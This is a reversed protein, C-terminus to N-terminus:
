TAASSTLYLKLNIIRTLTLTFINPRSENNPIPLQHPGREMSAATVSTALGSTVAVRRMADAVDDRLRTVDRSPSGHDVVIVSPGDLGQEKTVREVEGLMAKALM